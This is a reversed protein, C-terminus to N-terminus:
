MKKKSQAMTTNLTQMWTIYRACWTYQPHQCTAAYHIMCLLSQKDMRPKFESLAMGCVTLFVPMDCLIAYEWDPWGAFDNTLLMRFFILFLQVLRVCMISEEDEKGCAKKAASVLGEVYAIVDACEKIKTQSVFLAIQKEDVDMGSWQTAEPVSFSMAAIYIVWRTMSCTQYTEVFRPIAVSTVPHHLMWRQSEIGAKQASLVKVLHFVVCAGMGRM